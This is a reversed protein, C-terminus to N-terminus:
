IRISSSNIREIRSFKRYLEIYFKSLQVWQITHTRRDCSWRELVDIQTRHLYLNTTFITNLPVRQLCRHKPRDAASHQCGHDWRDAIKYIYIHFTITCIKGLTYYSLEVPDNTGNTECESIEVDLPNENLNGAQRNARILSLKRVNNSEYMEVGVRTMRNKLQFM